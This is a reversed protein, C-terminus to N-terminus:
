AMTMVHLADQDVVDAGTRKRVYFEVFPKCCYPDEVVHMGLRDVIQYGHYFSGYVIHQDDHSGLHDCVFVKNGLLTQPHQESFSPQWLFHGTTPDKLHRIRSLALPSMLWVAHQAYRPHIKEQISILDDVDKLAMTRLKHNPCLIGKPKNQGDGYIFSQNELAAMKEAVKHILWQSVDIASDELLKQSIKPKAYMEHVLIKQTKMSPTNTTPRDQTETVWGCDATNEDTIIDLHDTNVTTVNALQRITSYGMLLNQFRVMQEKPVLLGGKELVATSLFSPLVQQPMPESSQAATEPTGTMIEIM